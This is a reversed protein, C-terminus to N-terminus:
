HFQLHSSTRYILLLTIVENPTDLLRLNTKKKNLIIEDTNSFLNKKDVFYINGIYDSIVLQSDTDDFFYSFFHTM